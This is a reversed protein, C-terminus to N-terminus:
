PVSSPFVAKTKGALLSNFGDQFWSSDCLRWRKQDPYYKAAVQDIGNQTDIEGAALYLDGWPWYLNHKARSEWHMHVLACGDAPKIGKDTLPCISGFNITTAPQGAQYSLMDFDTIHNTVQVTEATTGYCDPDFNRMVQSVPISTDSFDTLFQVAMDGVEKISDHLSLTVSSKPNNTVQKGQSTYIEVVEVTLTVPVPADITDPAKWVVKPGSGSFTGGVSSTWNFKLDSIVSEADTVVVSIPVKESADAFNPPENTRSGQVTFAGIVPPTNNVVPGPDVVVPPTPGPGTPTGSCSWAIMALLFAVCRRKM